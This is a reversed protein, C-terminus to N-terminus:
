FHIIGKRVVRKVHGCCAPTPALRELMRHSDSLPLVAPGSVEFTEFARALDGVQACAAIVANLMPM